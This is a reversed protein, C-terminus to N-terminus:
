RGPRETETQTSPSILLDSLMAAAETWSATRRLVATGDRANEELWNVIANGLQAGTRGEFFSVGPGELERFVALDRALVPKGHSLAEVIPLGFGEGESAVLLGSARRYIHELFEDSASDIWRFQRNAQSLMRMKQQLQETKWGGRGIVLFQTAKDGERKLWEFAAVAQEYGKRPEITGVMLLTRGQRMWSLVSESDGPLGKSPLSASIDSGLRATSVPINRRARIRPRRQWAAFENAVSESIAVIRDARREVLNLWRRFNRRMKMTFWRGHTLPLLDYLVLRIEVGESRWAALRDEHHPLISSTFDLGFFIDGRRVRVPPHDLLRLERGPRAEQLWNDPLRRYFTTKDAAILRVSIGQLDVHQLAAVVARVVRQIGTRADNKAINSVDLLLQRSPAPAVKAADGLGVKEDAPWRNKAALNM